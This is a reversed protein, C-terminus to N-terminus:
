DAKLIKLVENNLKILEEQGSQMKSRFDAVVKPDPREGQSIGQGSGFIQRFDLFGYKEPQFDMNDIYTRQADTLIADILDAQKNGYDTQEKIRKMRSQLQSDNFDAQRRFQNQAQNRQREQPMKLLVLDNKILDEFLPRIKKKQAATLKLNKANIGNLNKLGETLWVLSQRMEQFEQRIQAGAAAAAAAVPAGFSLTQLGFGSLLLVSILFLKRKM